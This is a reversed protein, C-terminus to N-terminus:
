IEIEDDIVEYHRYAENLKESLPALDFEYECKSIHNYAVKPRTSGYNSDTIKHGILSERADFEVIGTISSVFTHRFSHADLKIIKDEIKKITEKELWQLRFKNENFVKSFAQGYGKDKTFYLDEFLRTHGSQVQQNYYKLFGLKILKPHIPITRKSEPNKLRQEEYDIAIRFMWIGDRKVIQDLYLQAAENLRFGNYLLMLPLWIRSPFQRFNKDFQTTYWKSAYFLNHLQEMRYEARPVADSTDYDVYQTKPKLLNESV